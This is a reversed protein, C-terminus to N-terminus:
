LVNGEEGPFNLYAPTDELRMPFTEALKGSPNIKGFLVDAIAGAGAQGVLWSEVIGEVENVWPMAVASSKM